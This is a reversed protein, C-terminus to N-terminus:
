DNTSVDDEYEEVEDDDDSSRKSAENSKSPDTSNSMMAFLAAGHAANQSLNTTNGATPDISSLHNAMLNNMGYYYMYPYMLSMQSMQQM